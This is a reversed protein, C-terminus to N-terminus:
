AKQKPPSLFRRIAERALRKGSGTPDETTLVVDPTQKPYYTKQFEEFSHVVKTQRSKSKATAMNM